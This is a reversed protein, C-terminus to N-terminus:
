KVASSSLKRRVFPLGAGAVGLAALLITSPEPVPVIKFMEGASGFPGLNTGALLYLEGDDDQGFGKVFLGLERDDLGLTFEEIAGTSLDAYFLRGDPNLFGRSFDGFVYKGELEPIASGRYMFGGIISIGEDHDYQAVPDILGPPLGSLDDSIAGTDHDFRFAGEKLNWGYNGGKEVINIEEVKDQGVDPVILAGTARDHSFRFPNRFGAAFIEALGGGAVYPNDAPIGYQGNASNNGNVDIRLMSGHPNTLDQGNGIDSHGDGVDNANGGDGVTIYLKGDPGFELAGANHNFQPHDMRILERRSSPDAVNPNAPDVQWEAVVNQHDFQSNPPLSLTFDAAPGVPESTYTYFKGFGPSNPNGYDPHFALGLLGREDYDGEDHTGFFGLEVLRSSVDLFPQPAVQGNDLIRVKGAQDVIFMRESADGAPLAQVPATLNAAVLQLEIRVPGKPIPTPFPNDIQGKAASTTLLGLGVAM